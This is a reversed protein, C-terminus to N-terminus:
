CNSSYRRSSGKKFSGIEDELKHLQGYKDATGTAAQGLRKLQSISGPTLSKGVHMM